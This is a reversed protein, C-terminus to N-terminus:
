IKKNKNEQGDKEVRERVDEIMLFANADRGQRPLKKEGEILLIPLNHSLV